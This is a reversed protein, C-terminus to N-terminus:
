RVLSLSRATAGENSELRYFYVGSAVPEGDSARGDWGSESWGRDRQGDLLTRILRGQLDFVQLRVRGPEMISFAIRTGSNFPNPRNPSLFLASRAPSHEQVAAAQGQVGLSHSDGAGLAAFGTNPAPVDCEGFDNSGWAVISGDAKLGLSHMGGGAVAVFGTNPAPVDCQGAGNYGWAVTSGDAKLGLSHFWGAAIAEFGTNPAPVDCQGSGNDGWAVISGDV